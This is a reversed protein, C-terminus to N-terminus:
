YDYLVRHALALAPVHRCSADKADCLTVKAKAHFSADLNINVLRGSLVIRFLPSRPGAAAQKQRALRDHDGRPHRRKWSTWRPLSSRTIRAEQLQARFWCDALPERADPLLM